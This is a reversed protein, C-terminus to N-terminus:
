LLKLLRRVSEYTPGNRRAIQAEGWLDRRASLAKHVWGTYQPTAPRACPAERAAHATSALVPVIALVALVLRLRM